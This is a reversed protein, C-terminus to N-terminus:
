GQEQRNVGVDLYLIKSSKYKDVILWIFHRNVGVDLQPVTLTLVPDSPNSKTVLLESRWQLPLDAYPNVVKQDEEQAKVKGVEDAM